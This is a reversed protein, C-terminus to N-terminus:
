QMNFMLSQLWKNDVIKKKYIMINNNKQIRFGWKLVFSVIKKHLYIYYTLTGVRVYPYNVEFDHNSKQPM